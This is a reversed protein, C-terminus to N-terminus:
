EGRFPEAVVQHDDEFVVYGPRDTTIQFVQYGNKELITILALMKAIHEDATPKLWSIGTGRKRYYGKSKSRNFRPPVALNARFWALLDELSSRDSAAIVTGDRLEYAAGFVGEAVGTRSSPAALCLAVTRPTPRENDVRVLRWPQMWM